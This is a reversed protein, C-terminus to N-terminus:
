LTTARLDLGLVERRAGSVTTLWQTLIFWALGGALALVM